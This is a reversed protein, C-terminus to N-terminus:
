PAAKLQPWNLGHAEDIRAMLWEWSATQLTGWTAIRLLDNDTLGQYDWPDFAHGGVLQGSAAPSATWPGQGFTDMDRQYLRVGVEVSMQILTEAIAERTTPIPEHVPVLLEKTGDAYTKAAFGNTCANGIVDLLVAGDTLALQEETAGPKGICAAYFDLPASDDVPPPGGGFVVGYAIASNALGACTCNPEYHNKFDQPEYDLRSRDLSPPPVVLGLRASLVARALREPHHLLRGLCLTM